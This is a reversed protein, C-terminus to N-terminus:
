KKWAKALLHDISSTDPRAIVAYDDYIVIPREIVIPNEILFQIKEDESMVFWDQSVAKFADEKMRIIGDVGLGLRSLWGKIMAPTLPTELYDFLTYEVGKEDLYAKAARAKSCQGNYIIQWM